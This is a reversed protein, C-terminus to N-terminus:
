QVKKKMSTPKPITSQVHAYKPNKTRKPTSYSDTKNCVSLNLNSMSHGLKKSESLKGTSKRANLNERGISPSSTPTGSFVTLSRGIKMPLNTKKKAPPDNLGSFGKSSSLRQTQKVTQPFVQQLIYV